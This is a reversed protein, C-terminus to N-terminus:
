SNPTDAFAREIFEDFDRFVAKHNKKWNMLASDLQIEMTHVFHAPYKDMESGSVFLPFEEWFDEIVPMRGYQEKISRAYVFAEEISKKCRKQYYEEVTCIVKAPSGIAVSNAPIDRTITSGYGFICNDGITVGKLVTCKRTFYVNNGIVVKGSSPVFEDYLNMFVKTIFDHTLLTFGDLFRVNDGIEILSPRTPDIYVTKPNRFFVNNGIKIHQKRLYDVYRENSMQVWRLKLAKFIRAIM